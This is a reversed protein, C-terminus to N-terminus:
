AATSVVDGATLTGSVTLDGTIVATGSSNAPILSVWDATANNMANRYYLTCSTANPKYWYLSGQPANCFPRAAGDVAVDGYWLWPALAGPPDFNSQPQNHLQM